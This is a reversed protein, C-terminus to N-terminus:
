LFYEPHKRKFGEVLLARISDVPAAGDTIHKFESFSLTLFEVPPNAPNSALTKRVSVLGAPTLYASFSAAPFPQVPTWILISRKKTM